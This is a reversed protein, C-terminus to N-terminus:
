GFDRRRFRSLTTDEGHGVKWGKLRCHGDLYAEGLARGGEMDTQHRCDFHCGRLTGISAGIPM